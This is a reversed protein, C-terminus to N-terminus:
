FRFSVREVKRYNEIVRKRESFSYLITKKAVLSTVNLQYRETGDEDKQDGTVKNPGNEGTVSGSRMMEGASSKTLRIGM